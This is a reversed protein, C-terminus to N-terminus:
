LLFRLLLGAGYSVLNLALSLLFPRRLSPAEKQFARYIGWETLVVLLEVGAEAPYYWLAPLGSRVLKMALVALPNTLVNALLVILLGKKRVGFAAALALEMLLTLGLSIGFSALENM